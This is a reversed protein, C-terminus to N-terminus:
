TVQTNGSPPQLLDVMSVTSIVTPIMLVHNTPRHGITMSSVQYKECLNTELHPNRHCHGASTASLGKQTSGGRGKKMLTKMGITAARQLSTATIKSSYTSTRTACHTSQIATSIDSLIIIKLAELIPRHVATVCTPTASHLMSNVKM